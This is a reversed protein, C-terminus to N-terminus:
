KSVKDRWTRGKGGRGGMRNVVMERKKGKGVEGGRIVALPDPPAGYSGLLDSRLGAALRM